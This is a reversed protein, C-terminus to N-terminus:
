KLMKVLGNNFTQLDRNVLRHNPAEMKKEHKFICRKQTHRLKRKTKTKKKCQRKDFINM